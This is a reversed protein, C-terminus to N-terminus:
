DNPGFTAPDASVCAVRKVATGLQIPILSVTHDLKYQSSSECPHLQKTFAWNKGNAFAMGYMALFSIVSNTESSTNHQSRNSATKVSIVSGVRIKNFLSASTFQTYQSRRQFKGLSYLIPERNGASQNEECKPLNRLAQKLKPKYAVDRQNSLVWREETIEM